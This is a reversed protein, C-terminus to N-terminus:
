GRSKNRAARQVMRYVEMPSTGYAALQTVYTNGGGSGGGGGGGANYRKTDAANLLKENAHVYMLGEGNVNVGTAGSPVTVTDGGDTEAVPVGGISATSTIELSDVSASITAQAQSTDVTATVTVDANTTISHGSNGVDTIATDVSTSLGMTDIAGAEVVADAVMPATLATVQAAAADLNAQMQAQTQAIDLNINPAIDITGNSAGLITDRLDSITEQISLQIGLGFNQFGVEVLAMGAQLALWANNVADTFSGISGGTLANVVSIVGDAIAGFTVGGLNAIAGGLDLWTQVQDLRLNGIAVGLSDFATAVDAMGGGVAVLGTVAAAILIFPFLPAAIAAALLTFVTGIGSIIMGLPIMAAGLLAAGGVIAVLTGALQPNATAWDTISQVVPTVATAIDSLALMLSQGITIALGSVASQLLSFQASASDLQVARAAATAGDINSAFTTLFDTAGASTLALAGRMGEIGNTLDGFNDHGADALAQYAGQLGLADVAAQGSEFGIDALAATMAESPRIMSIMAGSLQTSAQAASTGKTTLLAMMGGLQDFEIGMSSAVGTVQPFAAAFSDMSGVGAAVTATLVDSYHSADDASAGYANMAGILVNTTATLDAAGAESTAIAANLIPIRNAAESVGGVVDYFADAVAQPGAVAGTGIALIQANMAAADDAGLQLISNVNTMSADFETAASVALGLGAVIPLTIAAMSAGTQTMTSGLSQLSSAASGIGANVNNMGSQFRSIDADVVVSLTAITSM